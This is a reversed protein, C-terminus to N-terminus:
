GARTGGRHFPAANASMWRTFSDRDASFVVDIPAGGEAPVDRVALLALERTAPQDPDLDLGIVLGPAGDGIQAWCRRAERVAAVPALASALRELVDVPEDAPEGIRIATGAPVTTPGGGPHRLAPAHIPLGVDGGVNVAFGVDAPLVGLLERVAPRARPADPAGRQLQEESTFVPLLSQEDMTITPMTQTGDPQEVLPVWVVDQLLAAVFTAVPVQQDFARQLAVELDNAPFTM